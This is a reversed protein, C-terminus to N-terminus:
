LRVGLLATQCRDHWMDGLIDWDWVRFVVPQWKNRKRVSRLQPSSTSPTGAAISAIGPLQSLSAQTSASSPRSIPELTAPPPLLQPGDEMVPRLLPREFDPPPTLAPLPVPLPLLPSRIPALKYLTFSVLM